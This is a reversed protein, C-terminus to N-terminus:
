PAVGAKRLGELYTELQDARKLYFLHERAFGLSFDPKMQMLSRLASEAQPRDGVHGLASVHHAWAWYQANPTQV